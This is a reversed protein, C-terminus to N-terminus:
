ATTLSGDGYHVVFDTVLRGLLELYEKAAPVAEVEAGDYAFRCKLARTGIEPVSDGWWLMQVSFPTNSRPIRTVPILVTEGSLESGTLKLAQTREQKFRAILLQEPESRSDFWGPAWADYKEKEEKQLVFTVSRAASVFASFFFDAAEATSTGLPIHEERELHSLFFRAERLKKQTAALM